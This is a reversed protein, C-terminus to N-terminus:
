QAMDKKQRFIKKFLDLFMFKIFRYTDRAPNIYSQAHEHYLSEINATKISWGNERIRLIIDTEIEYKDSTLKDPDIADLKILRFGCQTDAIWQGM